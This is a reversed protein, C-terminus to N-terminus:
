KTSGLENTRVNNNIQGTMSKKLEPEIRDVVLQPNM